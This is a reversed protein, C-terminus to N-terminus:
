DYLLCGCGQCYIVRKMKLDATMQLTLRQYCNGCNDGDLRGLVNENMSKVRRRYEVLVDGPMQKEATALEQQVAQLDAEMTQMERKIEAIGRATEAQAKEYNIKAQAVETHLLDIRELMEFIEDQLVSNAQEDAAIREKLLQFEKNTECTNLKFQLDKMKAEREGLQLQKQDAAMQTKRVLDKADEWSQRFNAENRQALRIRQPGRQLRENLDTQQRLLGHIRALLAFDIALTQGGKFEPRTHFNLRNDNAPL